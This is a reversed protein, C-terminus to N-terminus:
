SRGGSIVAEVANDFAARLGSRELAALGRATSGGPSTVQRRLGLTDGGRSELLEATGALTEVALDRALEQTLGHRVGADVLAEVVLAIFAPANSSMAMAAEISAEPLEVVRGVAGFLEKITAATSSDGNEVPWCLVGRGVEVPLNPLVRFAQTEGYASRVEAVTVSGLISVVPTGTGALEAAVEALQGPKHCLILVDSREAAERNGSVAEGSVSAALEAARGAVPDSVVLPRGWGRALATAMSGAGILGIRLMSTM